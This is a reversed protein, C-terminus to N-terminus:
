LGTEEATSPSAGTNLALSRMVRRAANASDRDPDAFWEDLVADALAVLEARLRDVEALLAPIDAMLRAETEGWVLAICTNQERAAAFVGWEDPKGDALKEALWPGPTAAAVRARIAAEQETTLPAPSPQSTV